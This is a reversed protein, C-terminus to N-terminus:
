MQQNPGNANVVFVFCCCWAAAIQATDCKAHLAAGGYLICLVM